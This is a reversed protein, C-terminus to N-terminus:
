DKTSIAIQVRDKRVNKTSIDGLACIAQFRSGVPSTKSERLTLLIESM